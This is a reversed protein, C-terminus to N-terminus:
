SIDFEYTLPYALGYDLHHQGSVQFKYYEAQANKDASVKLWIKATRNQGDWSEIWFSVPKGSGPEAFRLDAGGEKITSFDVYNLGAHDHGQITIAIQYDNLALLDNEVLLTYRAGWQSFDEPIATPIDSAPKQSCGALLM